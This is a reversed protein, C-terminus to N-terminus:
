RQHAGEGPPHFPPSEREEALVARHGEHLASTRREGTSIREKEMEERERIQSEAGIEVVSAEVSAAHKKKKCAPTSYNEGHQEKSM